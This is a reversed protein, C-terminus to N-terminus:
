GSRSGARVRHAARLLGHGPRGSTRGGGSVLRAGEDVGTSIFGRVRERADASVLPCLDTEPDRPPGVRYNGAVEAALALAEEHRASPVLLRSWQLCTQGNNSCVQDVTARVATSLDADDLVVVPVRAAWNSTCRPTVHQAGLRAVERGAGSRGPSRSSTLRRITPWLRASSPGRGSWWTSCARRYTVSPSSAPWGTPPLPTLESPKHIVTCGAMLAPVIKQLALLLPVNWPTIAVV